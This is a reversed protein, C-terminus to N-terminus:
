VKIRALFSRVTDIYIRYDFKLEATKRAAKRLSNLEECSLQSVRIFAKYMAEVSCEEVLIANEGDKLYLGLDSTVNCLMACGNMMAEVSKTPFGAKAYRENAPRLLISFDADALYSIVKERPVRGLAKIGIPITGTETCSKVFDATAGLIIFEFKLKEIDSLKAYAVICESLYDKKAPSGAYVIKIKGTSDRDKPYYEKPDMIVPIRITALGENSFHKELYTSIAIVSFPNRILKTNTRNKMIYPYAFIGYKFECPSYWEVSDHIVPIGNNMAIQRVWEIGSKPIDYIHILSPLGKEEVIDAYVHEIQKIYGLSNKVKQALSKNEKYVSCYKVGRYEGTSSAEGMGIHFVDYGIEQYIKAFYGDRVAGADGNPFKNPTIMLVYM